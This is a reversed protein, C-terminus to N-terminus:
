QEHSSFRLEFSNVTGLFIVITCKVVNGQSGLVAMLCASLAMYIKTCGIPFLALRVNCMVYQISYPM